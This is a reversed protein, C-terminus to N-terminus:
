EEEPEIEAEAQESRMQPLLARAQGRERLAPYTLSDIVQRLGALAGARAKPGLEVVLGDVGATWLAEIEPATIGLPVRVLLPKALRDAFYHFQALHQYTIVPSDEVEGAILVADVPLESTASLLGQGISAKVELIKGVAANQFAALPTSEAPFVVFDWDSKEVPEGTIIGKLWGGWPLDPVRQSLRAHTKAGEELRSLPVLGGDAGAVLDALNGTKAGVLASILLIKPRDPAAQGSRFGMPQPAGQSVRRLKDILKSM